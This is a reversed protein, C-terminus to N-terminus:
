QLFISCQIHRLKGVWLLWQRLQAPLKPYYPQLFRNSSKELSHSASGPGLLASPPEPSPSRGQCCGPQVSGRGCMSAPSEVWVSINEQSCPLVQEGLQWM